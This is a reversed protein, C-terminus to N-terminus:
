SKKRGRKRKTEPRILNVATCLIDYAMWTECGLCSIEFTSCRKGFNKRIFKKLVKLENVGFRGRRALDHIFDYTTTNSSTTTTM